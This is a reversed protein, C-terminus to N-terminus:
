SSVKELDDNLDCENWRKKFKNLFGYGVIKKSIFLFIEKLVSEV